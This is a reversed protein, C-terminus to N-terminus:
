FRNKDKKTCWGAALGYDVYWLVDDPGLLDNGLDIGQFGLHTVICLPERPRGLVPRGCTKFSGEGDQCVLYSPSGQQM